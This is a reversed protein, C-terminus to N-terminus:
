RISGGRSLSRKVLRIVITFDRRAPPALLATLACAAIAAALGAFCALWPQGIVQAVAWAALGAPVAALLLARVSTAFFPRSPIGITKCAHYQAILWFLLYGLDYGLATGIPGFLTGIVVLVVVLPQTILYMHLQARSNGTSLYMWFAVQSVSRFAGGICLVALIPAVPMWDDGFLIRVIPDSLGAILLLVPATVYCSALQARAMYHALLKPDDSVRSFVPLAVRTLPANLQNLPVSLLQYARNYIGVISATSFFGLAMSDANQAVHALMRTGMLESGFKVFSRISGERTPLGPLWRGAIWALIFSGAALSVQQLVLAWVGWGALAAAIAASASIVGAVIEVLALSRYNLDRALGALYQTSAGNIIFSISLAAAVPVVRDDGYFLGILPAGSAIVVAVVVGIGLNLWFLNTRQAASLSKASMVASSLGFDRVIESLGTIAVVMALIGFDDPALLRTLAVVTVFQILARVLQSAITIASGRAAAGGLSDTRTM